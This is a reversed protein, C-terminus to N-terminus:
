TLTIYVKTVAIRSKPTYLKVTIHQLYLMARLGKIYFKCKMLNRFIKLTINDVIRNIKGPM